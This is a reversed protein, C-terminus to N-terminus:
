DASRPRVTVNTHGVLVSGNLEEVRLTLRFTTPETVQPATWTPEPITPDSFTGAPEVPSQTWKYTLPDGEPDVVEALLEVAQGPNAESVKADPGRVGEPGLNREGSCGVGLTAWLLLGSLVARSSSRSM